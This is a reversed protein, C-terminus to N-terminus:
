VLNLTSMLKEVLMKDDGAYNGLIIEDYISQVENIILVNGSSSIIDVQGNMREVLGAMQSAKSSFDLEHKTDLKRELVRWEWLSSYFDYIVASVENSMPEKCEIDKLTELDFETAIIPYPMDDEDFQEEHGELTSKSKMFYNKSFVLGNSAKKERCFFLTITDIDALSFVSMALSIQSWRDVLDGVDVGEVGFVASNSYEDEIIRVPKYIDLGSMSAFADLCLVLREFQTGRQEKWYVSVESWPDAIPIFKLDFIQNGYYYSTRFLRGFWINEQRIIDKTDFYRFTLGVIEEYSQQMSPLRITFSKLNYLAFRRIDPHDPLVLGAFQGCYNQYSEAWDRLRKILPEVIEDVSQKSFHRKPFLPLTKLMNLFSVSSLEYKKILMKYLNTGIKGKLIVEILENQIQTCSIVQKRLAFYRHQWEYISKARYPEHLEDFWIKNLEVRFSNFIVNPELTKHASQLSFRTMAYNPFPFLVANTEYISFVPLMSHIIGIREVSEDNAQSFSTSRLLYEIQVSSGERKISLTNTKIKLLDIIKEFYDNVFKLFEVPHGLFLSDVLKQTIKIEKETLFQLLKHGDPMGFSIKFIGFWGLLHGFNLASLNRKLVLNHIRPVIFKLITEEITFKPLADVAKQIHNEPDGTFDELVKMVPISDSNPFPITSIPLITYGGNEFVNDYIDRYQDQYLRIEGQYIGSLLDSISNLPLGELATILNDYQAAEGDNRFFQPIALGYIFLDDSDIIRAVDLLTDVLAFNDHLLNSLHFSRVHHLGEIWEKNFRVFYEDELQNFIEGIDSEMRFESRVYKRIRDTKLMLGITDAFSILRLIALKAAGDGAFNLRSLQSKLRRSLMEGRTILYVYEMLLGRAQVTEWASQWDRCTPHVRNKKKLEEYIRRAEVADFNMLIPEGLQIKYAESGYLSWDEERTTIIFNISTSALRSALETWNLFHSSLGDLVVVPAEGILTRSELFNVLGGVQEMTSCSHVQYIERGKTNLEYCVRWAVTSKGQGSSAKIAVCDFESLHSIIRNEIKPRAVALGMSIHFPMAPQGDYYRTLDKQVYNSFKVKEILKNQIAPNRDGLSIEDGVRVGLKTLHHFDFTGGTKSIYFLEFFLANLYLTFTANSLSFFNVILRENDARLSDYDTTEITISKLFKKIDFTSWDWDRSRNENKFAEIRRFWYNIDEEKLEANFNTKSDRSSKNVVITFRAENDLLYTEIFNQLVGMHWLKNATLSDNNFKVQYFKKDDTQIKNHLDIDEIGELRIFALKNDVSLETLAKNIAFHLQFEIGRINVRGGNRRKALQAISQPLNGAKSELPQPM